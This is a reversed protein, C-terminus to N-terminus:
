RLLLSKERACVVTPSKRMDFLLKFTSKRHVTAACLTIRSLCIKRQNIILHDDGLLLSSEPFAGLVANIVASDQDTCVFKPLTSYCSRFRSLFCQYYASTEECVFGIYLSSYTSEQQQRYVNRYGFSHRLYLCNCECEPM